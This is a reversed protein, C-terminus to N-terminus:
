TETGAGIVTVKFGVNFKAPDEWLRIQMIINLGNTSTGTVTFVTHVPSAPNVVVLVVCGTTHLVVVLM